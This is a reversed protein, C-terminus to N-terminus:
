RLNEWGRLEYEDNEDGVVREWDGDDYNFTVGYPSHLIGNTLPVNFYQEIIDSMMSTMIHPLKLMTEVRDDLNRTMLDASSIYADDGFVYIRDHELVLGCTRCMKQDEVFEEAPKWTNIGRVVVRLSVDQDIAQDLLDEISDDCLNNCKIFIRGHSGRSIERAIKSEIEDRLTMPSTFVVDSPVVIQRHEVLANLIRRAVSVVKPDNTIVHTDVFSKQCGYHYNGTAFHAKTYGDSFKVVAVKAHVKYRFHGSTVEIGKQQLETITQLNSLESDRASIEIYVQIKADPSMERIKLLFDLMSRDIRYLSISFDTIQGMGDYRMDRDKKVFDEMIEMFDTYPTRYMWYDYDHKDSVHMFNYGSLHHPIYSTWIKSIDPKPLVKDYRDMGVMGSSPVPILIYDENGNMPEIVGRSCLVEYVYQIDKQSAIIASYPTRRKMDLYDEAEDCSAFVPTPAYGSVLEFPISGVGVRTEEFPLVKKNCADYFGRIKTTVIQADPDLINPHIFYMGPDLHVSTPFEEMGVNIIEAAHDEPNQHCDKEWTRFTKSMVNDMFLKITKNKGVAKPARVSIFELFNKYIYGLTRCKDPGSMGQAATWLQSNYDIISMCKRTSRMM